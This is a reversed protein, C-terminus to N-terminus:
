KDRICLKKLLIEESSSCCRSILSSPPPTGSGSKNGIAPTGPKCPTGSNSKIKSLKDSGMCIIIFLIFSTKLSMCSPKVLDRFFDSRTHITYRPASFM